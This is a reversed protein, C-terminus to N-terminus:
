LVPLRILNWLIIRRRLDFSESIDPRSDGVCVRCRESTVTGVPPSAEWRGTPAAICKCGAHRSPEKECSKTPAVSGSLERIRIVLCASQARLLLSGRAAASIYWDAPSCRFAMSMMPRCPQSSVYTDSSRVTEM